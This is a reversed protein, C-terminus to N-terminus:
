HVFYNIIGMGNRMYGLMLNVADVVGAPVLPLDIASFIVNTVWGVLNQIMGMIM